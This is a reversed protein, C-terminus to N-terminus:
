SPLGCRVSDESAHRAPLAELWLHVEAPCAEFGVADELRARALREAAEAVERPLAPAALLQLLPMLGAPSLPQGSGAAPGTAQQQSAAAELVQLTAHQLLPPLALVDQVHM